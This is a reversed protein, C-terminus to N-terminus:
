KGKFGNVLVTFQKTIKEIRKKDCPPCRCPNPGVYETKCDVCIRKGRKLM